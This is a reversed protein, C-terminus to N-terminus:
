EGPSTRHGSSEGRRCQGDSDGRTRGGARGIETGFAELRVDREEGVVQEFSPFRAGAAVLNGGAVDRRLERLEPDLRAAGVAVKLRRREELGSRDAVRCEDDRGGRAPP